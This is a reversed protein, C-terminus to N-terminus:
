LSGAQQLPTVQNVTIKKATLLATQSSITLAQQHPRRAASESRRSALVSSAAVSFMKFASSVMAARQPLSPRTVELSAKIVAIHLPEKGGCQARVTSFAVVAAVSELLHLCQAACSGGDAPGASFPTPVGREPEEWGPCPRHERRCTHERREM